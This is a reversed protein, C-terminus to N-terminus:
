RMLNHPSFSIVHIFYLVKMFIFFDLLISLICCINMEERKERYCIFLGACNAERVNGAVVTAGVSYGQSRLLVFPFGEISHDNNLNAAFTLM